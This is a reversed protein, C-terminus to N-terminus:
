ERSFRGREAVGEPANVAVPFGLVGAVVEGALDLALDAAAIRERVGDEFVGGPGDEILVACLDGFGIKAVGALDGVQEEAEVGVSFGGDAIELGGDGFEAGADGLEGTAEGFLDCLRM